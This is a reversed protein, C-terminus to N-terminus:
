FFFVYIRVLITFVLKYIFKLLLLRLFGNRHRTGIGQLIRMPFCWPPWCHLGYRPAAWLLIFYVLLWYPIPLLCYESYIHESEICFYIAELYCEFDLDLPISEFILLFTLKGNVKPLEIKHRSRNSDM